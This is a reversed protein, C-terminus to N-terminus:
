RFFGRFLRSMSTVSLLPFKWIRFFESAVCSWASMSASSGMTLTNLKPGAKTM